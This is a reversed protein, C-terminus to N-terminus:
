LTIGMTTVQANFRAAFTKKLPFSQPTNATYHYRHCTIIPRRIKAHSAPICNLAVTRKRRM